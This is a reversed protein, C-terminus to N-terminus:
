SFYRSEESYNLIGLEMLLHLDEHLAKWLLFTLYELPNSPGYVPDTDTAATAMPADIM